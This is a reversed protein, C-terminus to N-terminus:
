GFTRGGRKGRGTRVHLELGGGLTRAGTGLEELGGVLHTGRAARASDGNSAGRATPQSMRLGVVDRCGMREDPRMRVDIAACGHM